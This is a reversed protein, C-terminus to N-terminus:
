EHSAELQKPQDKDPGGVHLHPAAEFIERCERSCFYFVRGEYISPKADATKVTKGCVPDKDTEPPVWRIDDADVSDSSATARGHTGHGMVHAGLVSRMTMFLIVAWLGFFLLNEM